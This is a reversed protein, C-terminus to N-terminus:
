RISFLVRTELAIRLSSLRKLLSTIERESWLTEVAQLISRLRRFKGDQLRLKGLRLIIEDAVDAAEDCVRKFSSWTEKDERVIEGQTEESSLSQRLKSVLARLDATVLELQDNAALSGVTSKYLEGAKSFLKTGFDIFQLVNGALSLASLPDM